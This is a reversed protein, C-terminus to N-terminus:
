AEVEKKNMFSLLSITILVIVFFSVVAYASAKGMMQDNFATKYIIFMLTNTSRGPGGNTMIFPFDFAKLGNIVNLIINITIIPFILPLKIKIFLQMETCGDIKGAEILSEDITQLGALYIIMASGFGRWIEVVAIAFLATKFNGLLDITSGNFGLIKLFSSLLGNGPMFVYSWIFGVVIASFLNPIFSATRFAGKGRIKSNLAMAILLGLVNNGVVMLITYILTNKLANILSGDRLITLYNKLGVFNFNYNIGNFDTISYYFLQLIPFIWFILFLTMAPVIFIYLRKPFVLVRNKHLKVINNTKKDM